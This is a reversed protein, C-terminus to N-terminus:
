WDTRWGQPLTLWACRTENGVTMTPEPLEETFCGGAIGTLGEFDSARWSLTTGCKGCFVREQWNARGAGPERGAPAYTRFAGLTATVAHNPFYAAWGFASGTRRQCDRCHCVGNIVPDGTVQIACAGCCCRAERTM